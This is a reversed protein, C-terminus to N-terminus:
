AAWDNICALLGAGDSPLCAFASPQIGTQAEYAEQVRRSVAEVAGNEVLAVVCGGWGAGTLRAGLVGPSEMLVTVLLEVEPCSIEYDDRASAHAEGLLRGLAALDGSAMAKVAEQVRRNENWVHRCRARVRLTTEATIGPIDGLEIGVAALEAPTTKEPLHPELREWPVTEVDRLHTTQPFSARLLGSGARCAAVRRNFDNGVNRHKVGSDVILLSYASPLPEHQTRYSGDQGPRCDLLLSHDRKGMVAIFHDMVGGRTGVYWEADSCLMVMEEVPPQWGNFHALATAAAVTLASSSSLGAGRPVGHPAAASVLGDFGTLRRGDGNSLRQALNQAVGRAYNSWHGGASIPVEEEAEFSFPEYRSEINCLRILNDQRPRALLLVDKDLAVPMVYGHNYDTHEGILNVRGPARFLSIEGPGYRSRFAKAAATYRPLQELAKSGYAQRLFSEM